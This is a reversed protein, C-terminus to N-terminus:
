RSIECDRGEVRGDPSRAGPDPELCGILTAVRGVVPERETGGTRSELSRDGGEGELDVLHLHRQVVLRRVLPEGGLRALVRERAQM